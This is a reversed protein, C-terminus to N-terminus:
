GTARVIRTFAELIAAVWQERDSPLGQGIVQRSPRLNVRLECLEQALARGLCVEGCGGAPVLLEESQRIGLSTSLDEMEAVEGCRSGLLGARVEDESQATERQRFPLEEACDLAFQARRKQSLNELVLPHGRVALLEFPDCLLIMVDVAIPAKDVSQVHDNTRDLSSSIGGGQIVERPLRAFFAQPPDHLAEEVM